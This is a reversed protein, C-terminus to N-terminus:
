SRATEVRVPTAAVGRGLLLAKALALVAFYAVGFAISIHPAQASPDPHESMSLTAVFEPTLGLAPLPLKNCAVIGIVFAALSVLWLRRARSMEQAATAAPVRLAGHVAVPVVVRGM